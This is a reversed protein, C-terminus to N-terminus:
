GRRVWPSVGTEDSAFLGQTAIGQFKVRGPAQGLCSRPVTVRTSESTPLARVQLGACARRTGNFRLEQLGASPSVFVQYSASTGWRIYFSQNQADALSTYRMTMVVQTTANSYTLQRIDPLDGAPDSVSGTAASAAPAFLVTLAFLLLATLPMRRM